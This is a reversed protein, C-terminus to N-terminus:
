TLFKYPINEKYNRKYNMSIIRKSGVFSHSKARVTLGDKM